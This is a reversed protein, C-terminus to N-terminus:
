RQPHDYTPRPLWRWMQGVYESYEAAQGTGIANLLAQADAVAPVLEGSEYRSITSGDLGVAKALEGQKMIGARLSALRNGFDEPLQGMQMAIGGLWITCCVHNHTLAFKRLVILLFTM